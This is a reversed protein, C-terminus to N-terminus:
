VRADDRHITQLPRGHIGGAANVQEVALTWAQRYPALFAPQATYSNIEGIKLPEAQARLVGPAALVAAGGLLTRRGFEKGVM